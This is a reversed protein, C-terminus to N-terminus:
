CSPISSFLMLLSIEGTSQPCCRQMPKMEIVQPLFGTYTIESGTIASLFVVTFIIDFFKLLLFIEPEM